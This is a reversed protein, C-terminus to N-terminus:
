DKVKYDRSRYFGLLFPSIKLQIIIVSLCFFLSLSPLLRVRQSSVASTISSPHHSRQLTVTSISAHQSLCTKIFHYDPFFCLQNFKVMNIDLKIDTVTKINSYTRLTHSCANWNSCQNVTIM